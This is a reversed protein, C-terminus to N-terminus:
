VRDPSILEARLLGRLSNGVFVADAALLVPLTIDAEVALGRALLDARLVGPLLGPAGVESARPTLLRGGNQVFLTTFSGERLRDDAGLFLVEDAGCLASLRAREGDYFDRRSTKIDTRQVADSLAYRSLALRVPERMPTLPERVTRTGGAPDLE